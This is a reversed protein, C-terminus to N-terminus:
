FNKGLCKIILVDDKTEGGLVKAAKTFDIGAVKREFDVLMGEREEEFSKKTGIKESCSNKIKDALHPCHSINREGQSGLSAFAFCTKLGCDGCNSKNLIKYIEIPTVAIKPM